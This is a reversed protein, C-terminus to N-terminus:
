KKFENEKLVYYEKKDRLLALLLLLYHKVLDTTTQDSKNLTMAYFDQTIKELRSILDNYKEIDHSFM